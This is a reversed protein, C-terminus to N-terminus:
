RIYQTRLSAALRGIETAPSAPTDNVVEARTSPVVSVGEYGGGGSVAKTFTVKGHVAEHDGAAGPRGTGIDRVDVLGTLGADSLPPEADLALTWTATRDENVPLRTASNFFDRDPSPRTADESHRKRRRETWISIRRDPQRPSARDLAANSRRFGCRWWGAEVHAGGTGGAIEHACGVRLPASLLGGGQCDQLASPAFLWALEHLVPLPLRRIGLVLCVICKRSDHARQRSAASPANVATRAPPAILMTFSTRPAAAKSRTSPLVPLESLPPRRAAPLPRAPEAPGSVELCAPVDSMPVQSAEGTAVGCLGPDGFRLCCASRLICAPSSDSETMTTCAVAPLVAPSVPASDSSRLAPGPGLPPQKPLARASCPVPNGTDSGVSRVRHRAPRQAVPGRGCRRADGSHHVTSHRANLGVMSDGLGAATSPYIMLDVIALTPTTWDRSIGKRLPPHASRFDSPPSAKKM